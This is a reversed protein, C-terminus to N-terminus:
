HTFQIAAVSLFIPVGVEVTIMEYMCTALVTDSLYLWRLAYLIYVYKQV